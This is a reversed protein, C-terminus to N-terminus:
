GTVPPLQKLYEESLLGNLNLQSRLIRVPLRSLLDFWQDTSLKLGQKHKVIGEYFQGENSDIEVLTQHLVDRATEISHNLVLDVLNKTNEFTMASM